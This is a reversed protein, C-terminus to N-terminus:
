KFWSLFREWFGRESKNSCRKPLSSIIIVDDGIREIDEFPIMYYDRSIFFGMFRTSVPVSFSIIKGSEPDFFVDEAFGM